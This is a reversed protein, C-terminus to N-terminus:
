RPIASTLGNYENQDKECRNLIALILVVIFGDMGRPFLSSIVCTRVLATRFAELCTRHFLPVEPQFKEPPGQRDGRTDAGSVGVHAYVCPCVGRCEWAGVETSDM